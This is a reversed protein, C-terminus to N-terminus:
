YIVWLAFVFNCYWYFPHVFHIVHFTLWLTIDELDSFNEQDVCRHPLTLTDLIKNENIQTTLVNTRCLPFQHLLTKPWINSYM